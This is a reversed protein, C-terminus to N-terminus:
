LTASETNSVSVEPRPVTFDLDDPNYSNVFVYGSDLFVRDPYIHVVKGLSTDSGTYYLSGYYRFCPIGELICYHYRVTLPILNTVSVAPINSVPSSIPTHDFGSAGLVRVSNLLNTIHSEYSSKLYSVENRFEFVSQAYSSREVDHLHFARWAVFANLAVLSLLFLPFFLMMRDRVLQMVDRSSKRSSKKM